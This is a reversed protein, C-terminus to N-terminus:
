TFARWNLESEHLLEEFSKNKERQRQAELRQQRALAEARDAEQQWAEKKAYFKQLVEQNLRDKLLLQDEKKKEANAQASASGKKKKKM